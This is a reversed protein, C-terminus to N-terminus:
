GPPTVDKEMRGRHRSPRGKRIHEFRRHSDVAERWHTEGFPLDQISLEDILRKWCVTRRERPGFLGSTAATPLAPSTMSRLM